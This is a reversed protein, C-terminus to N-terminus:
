EVNIRDGKPDYHAAKTITCPIVEGRHFAYVTDGIRKSGGKVLGIAVSANLTPSMVTSTVFGQSPMPAKFVSENIIHAGLPLEQTPDVAKFGVFQHRNEAQDAPRALSRKGIFDDQKKSIPVAWGFDLPTSTGLTDLGIVLHGKEIRMWNLAETGFPTIDFEKGAAMCLESLATAYRSPINIEFSLEGTFSARLVRVPVGDIQGLKMEMHAFADKSVDIGTGLKEMVKRANPGSLKIDAWQTSVNAVLVKYHPWEAQWEELMLAVSAAGASTTNLLFHDDALRVVIGDDILSGRESCMLGYRAKGVKVTGINNVYIRNLFEAADPGKVEIKGLSSYDLVGVSTRVAHIERIVAQEKSEGAKPYYDARQWGYDIFVAGHDQHFKKAAVQLRPRYQEGIDRGAIAGITIPAYPPRFKTTGVQPIPRNSLEAMVALANVNSTKGQDVSMGNTTYRKVHEVSLMNERQALEIDAVKVDYQFDLWQKDSPANKTYWYAQTGITAEDACDNTTNLTVDKGTVKSVADSGAAYGSELSSKLSFHGDASGTVKVAQTCNGRPVLCAKEDVYDLSGGAQSYLHITPTWGGSMALLDCSIKTDTNRLSGNDHKAISVAKLGKRGHVKAITYGHYITIGKDTAQQQWYGNANARTDVIAVVEGGIGHFDLASQYASDNNTVFVAKNGASVGYRNIYTRVGSALMIGPADNNAFALPREIAGTALVVRKARIKWFRERPLDKNVDSNKTKPGLHNTVREVAVLFNQDYYGSVMTRKLLTVNDLAALEKIAQEVWQMAPKGDILESSALLSGGFEVDNDVLMVQLGQRAATLASAIGSPGAGVVLVDTHRHRKHYTDPDRETPCKGLGAINRVLGEYWSWNPWMMTKYYFSAPFFRHFYGLVGFVDNNVNPWSNQGKADLGDYLPVLTARASPESYASDPELQVLANPEEIGAAMLGRPRHLKFSRGVIKIDNALMASALTDGQFGEFKKGDFSFTLPKTTDVRHLNGLRNAFSM